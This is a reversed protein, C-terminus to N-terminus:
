ERQVFSAKAYAKAMALTADAKDRCAKQADGALASCEALAVRHAGEADTVALDYAATVVKAEAHDTAKAMGAEASAENKAADARAEAVDHQVAAPSEARQCGSLAAVGLSALVLLLPSNM